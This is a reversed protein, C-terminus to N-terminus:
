QIILWSLHYSGSVLCNRSSPFVKIIPWFDQIIDDWIDTTFLFLTLFLWQPNPPFYFITLDYFCAFRDNRCLTDTNWNCVTMHCSYKYRKFFFWAFFFNKCTPRLIFSSWMF